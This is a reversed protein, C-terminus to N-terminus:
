AESTPTTFYASLLLADLAKKEDGLESYILHLVHYPDPLGPQEGLDWSFDKFDEM